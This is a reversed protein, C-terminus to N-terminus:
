PREKPRGSRAREAGRLLEIALDRAADPDTGAYEEADMWASQDDGDAIADSSEDVAFATLMACAIGLAAAEAAVRAGEIAGDESVGKVLELKHPNSARVWWQGTDSAQLQLHGAWAVQGRLGTTDWNWILRLRPESM